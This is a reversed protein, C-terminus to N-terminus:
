RAGGFEGLKGKKLFQEIEAASVRMQLMKEVWVYSVEGHKARYSEEVQKNFGKSALAVESASAQTKLEKDIALLNFKKTEVASSHVWGVLGGSTRVQIWGEQASLRELNEGARLVAVTPSYFKPEKRLNTSQIKVIVTEALMAVFLILIACILFSLRFPKKMSVEEKKEEEIM